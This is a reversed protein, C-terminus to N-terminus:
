GDHTEVEEYVDFMPPPAESRTPGGLWDSPRVAPPVWDPAEALMTLKKVERDVLGAVRELQRNARDIGALYSPDFMTFPTVKMDSPFTLPLSSMDAIGTCPTGRLLAVIEAGYPTGELGDTAIFAAFPKALFAAPVDSPKFVGAIPLDRHRKRFKKPDRSVLVIEGYGYQLARVAVAKALMGTGVILLSRDGADPDPTLHQLSTEEYDFRAYFGFHDRIREAMRSASTAIAWVKTGAPVAEIAQTFQRHIFKEGLVQSRLGTAIELMRGYVAANGAITRGAHGFTTTLVDDPVPDVSYVEIRHCTGLFMAGPVRFDLAKTREHLDAM